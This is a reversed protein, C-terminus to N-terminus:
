ITRCIVSWYLMFHFSDPKLGGKHVYLSFQALLVEQPHHSSVLIVYVVLLLSIILSYTGASFPYMYKNIQARSAMGANTVSGQIELYIQCSVRM